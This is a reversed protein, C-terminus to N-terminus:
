KNRPEPPFVFGQMLPSSKGSQSLEATRVFALAANEPSMSGAIVEHALNIALFDLPESGCRATLEDGDKSVKLVDGFVGLALRKDDAVRMGVTQEMNSPGGARDLYGPEDWVAVTRWPGAGDWVLRSASVRDPPGYREILFDATVRSYNSWHDVTEQVLARRQDPGRPPLVSCSSVLISLVFFRAIKM